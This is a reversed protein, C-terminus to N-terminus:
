YEGMLEIRLETLIEGLLNKGNWTSRHSARSDISRLGIGWIKDYPSAEVLTTGKTSFLHNRMKDNQTFKLKNGLYVIKSRYYKWVKDDYDKVARGIEKIQRVDSIEMIKEARNRDLFIIAKHYMMFQEASSYNQNGIPFRNDLIDERKLEFLKGKYGIGEVLLTPGSFYSSHWQSFPSETEWFYSFQESNIEDKLREVLSRFGAVPINLKKVSVQAMDIVEEFTLGSIERKGLLLEYGGLISRKKELWTKNSWQFVRLNEYYEYREERSLEELEKAPLIKV